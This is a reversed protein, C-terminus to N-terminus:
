ASRVVPATYKPPYPISHMRLAIIRSMNAGSGPSNHESTERSDPGYNRSAESCYTDLLPDRNGTAMWGLSRAPRQITSRILYIEPFVLGLRRSLTKARQRRSDNAPCIPLKSIDIAIGRPRILRSSELLDSMSQLRVCSSCGWAFVDDQVALIRHRDAHTDDIGIKAAHWFSPVVHSSPPIKACQGFLRM